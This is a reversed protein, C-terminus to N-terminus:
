QFQTFDITTFPDSQLPDLLNYKGSLELVKNDPNLYWVRFAGEIILPEVKIVTKVAQASFDPDLGIVVGGFLSGEIGFIDGPFLIGAEGGVGIKIEGSFNLADISWTPLVATSEDKSAGMTLKGTGSGLIYTSYMFVPNPVSSYPPPFCVKATLSYNIEGEVSKKVGKQPSNFKDVPSVKYSLNHDFGMDLPKCASTQYAEFSYGKTVADSPKVYEKLRTLLTTLTHSVGGFTEENAADRSVYVHKGGATIDLFTPSGADDSWESVFNSSPMVTSGTWDPQDAGFSEGDNPVAKLMVGNHGVLHLTDGNMAKRLPHTPDIAIVEKVGVNVRFPGEAYCDEDGVITARITIDGSQHCYSIKGTTPDIECGLHDPSQISWEITAGPPKSTLHALAQNATSDPKTYSPAVTVGGTAVTVKVQDVVKNTFNPGIAVLTYETTKDPQALPRKDHINSLGAAPSWTYCYENPASAVGLEAGVGQCITVDPGAWEQAAAADLLLCCISTVILYIAHKAM